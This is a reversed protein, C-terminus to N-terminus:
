NRRTSRRSFGTRKGPTKVRFSSTVLGGIIFVAIAVQIIKMNIVLLKKYIPNHEVDALLHYASIVNILVSVVSLVIVIKFALEFFKKTLQPGRTM